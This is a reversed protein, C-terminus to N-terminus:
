KAGEPDSQARAGHVSRQQLAADVEDLDFRYVRGVAVKAPIIGARLWNFVTPVTVGYRDAIQRATVWRPNPESTHSPMIGGLKGM